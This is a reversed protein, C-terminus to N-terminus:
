AADERVVQVGKTVNIGSELDRLEIDDGSSAGHAQSPDGADVHVQTQSQQLWKTDNDQLTAIKHQSDNVSPLRVASRGKSGNSSSGRSAISLISRVSRVISEPARGGDILPGYCPLCAAIISCHPEVLLFVFQTSQLATKSCVSTGTSLVDSLVRHVLALRVAAAVCCLIGLWFIGGVAIKRRTRMNLQSIVPLPFCLIVVDLVLSSGVQTYGVATPDLRWHYTGGAATTLVFTRSNGQLAVILIMAIGWLAVVGIVIWVAIKFKRTVFIRKYFLLISIKVGTLTVQTLESALVLCVASYVAGTLADVKVENIGIQAAYVWVNISLAISSLWTVTIWWDDSQLRAKRASRAKFRLLVAGLSLLPFIVSVVVLATTILSPNDAM